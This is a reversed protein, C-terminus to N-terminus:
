DSHLPASARRYAAPSWGAERRFVRSFYHVTGFGLGEAIEKIPLTSEALLQSARRIRERRIYEGISIQLERRFIRSLHRESVHLYDAVHGIFLLESLNDRIYLKAQELIASRPEAPVAATPQLREGAFLAPFSLLLSYATSQLLGPSREWATGSAAQQLLALWLHAASAGSAHRILAPGPERLLGFAAATEQPQADPDPQFAVFLLYLETDSDPVIQHYIEPRSCFATGPMIRHWEERERYTGSGRTCLCIEYFSHKHYQNALLGPSAGWYKIEFKGQPGNLRQVYANLASAADKWQSVELGEM